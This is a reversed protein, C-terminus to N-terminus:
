EMGTNSNLSELLIKIQKFDDFITSKLRQNYLAAAPHYLPLFIPSGFNAKFKIAQGHLKSIPPMENMIEYQNILFEMAFRGLAVVIKPQIVDLQQILFPGYLKIEDPKPDRNKPPRDKLVSTIFVEDRNLNISALLTDLLKGASGVFPLGTLAENKGPAEGVIVIEANPNGSGPVFQYNNAIRISRLESVVEEASQAIIKLQSLKPNDM